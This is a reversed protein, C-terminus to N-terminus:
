RRVREEFPSSCNLFSWISWSIGGFVGFKHFQEVRMEELRGSNMDIWLHWSCTRKGRCDCFRGPRRVKALAM